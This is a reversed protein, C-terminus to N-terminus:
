GRAATRTVPARVGRTNKLGWGRRCPDATHPGHSISAAEWGREASACGVLSLEAVADARVPLRDHVSLPSNYNTRRRAHQPSRFQGCQRLCAPRRRISWDSTATYDVLRPSAVGASEVEIEVTYRRVGFEWQNCNTRAILDPQGAQIVIENNLSVGRYWARHFITDPRSCETISRHALRRVCRAVPTSPTCSVGFQGVSLRLPVEPNDEIVSWSAGSPARLCSRRRGWRRCPGTMTCRPPAKRPSTWIPCLSKEPRTSARIPYELDGHCSALYNSQARITLSAATVAFTGAPEDAWISAAPICRWPTWRASSSTWRIAVKRTTPRSKRWCGGPRSPWARM